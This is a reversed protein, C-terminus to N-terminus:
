FKLAAYSLYDLSTQIRHQIFNLFGGITTMFGLMEKLMEAKLKFVQNNPDQALSAEAQKILVNTKHFLTKFMNETKLINQQSEQGLKIAAIFEDPNFTKTEFKLKDNFKKREDAYSQRESKLEELRNSLEAVDTIQVAKEIEKIASEVDGDFSKIIEVVTEIGEDSLVKCSVTGDSSKSIKPKPWHGTSELTESLSKALTEKARNLNNEDGSKAAEAVAIAPNIVKTTKNASDKFFGFLGWFWKWLEVIKDKIWVFFDKIAEVIGENSFTINSSEFSSGVLEMLQPTKGYKQISERISILNIIADFGKNLSNNIEYFQEFSWDEPIEGQAPKLVELGLNFM